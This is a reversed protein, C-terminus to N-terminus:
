LYYLEGAHRSAMLSLPWCQWPVTKPTRVLGSHWFPLCLPADGIMDYSRHMKYHRLIRRLKLFTYNSPYYSVAWFRADILLGYTRNLVARQSIHFQHEQRM